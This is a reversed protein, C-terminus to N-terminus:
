STSAIIFASVSANAGAPLISNIANTLGTTTYNSGFTITASTNAGYNLKFSDVPGGHRVEEVSSSCAACGAVGVIQMNPVDTNSSAGGYTVNFTGLTPSTNTVTVTTGSPLTSSPDALADDIVGQIASNSFAVGGAGGIKATEVGGIQLMFSSTSTSPTASAKFGIGFTATQVESGGGFHTLAVSQVEDVPDQDSRVYRTLEAFSRESFYPDSHPQLNDQGCIGAYAMISSGSGPEVASNLVGNGACNADDGNFTHSGGYEHGMEHAVYDVAYFDGDPKELGTCGGAKFSTGVVGLGAIGGGDRGLAIHGIDFNEAGVIQGIAIRNADLTDSSCGGEEARTYCPAAGCPGNPDIMAADTNLNLDDNQAILVMRIALESEYVQDVRNILAVKAATVNAPGFYAAYGPDSALALRYTRLQTGNSLGRNGLASGTSLEARSDPEGKPEVGSEELPGHRNALEDGYYSAYLSQDRHYVPDIYWFGLDGGRVSAQFGLPSQTIRVSSGPDDLGKGAFTQIEPHEAALGPAMVEVPAVRFDQSSGDPAPLSVVSTDASASASASRAAGASASAPPSGVPLAASM